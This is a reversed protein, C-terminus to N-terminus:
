INSPFGSTLIEGKMVAAPICALFTDSSRFEVTVRGLSQQHLVYWQVVDIEGRDWVVNAANRQDIEHIWDLIRKVKERRGRFPGIQSVHTQHAVLALQEPRQMRKGERAKQDVVPLM